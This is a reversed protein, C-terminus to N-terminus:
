QYTFLVKLQRKHNAVYASLSAKKPYRLLFNLQRSHNAEDVALSPKIETHLHFTLNAIIIQQTLLCPIAKQIWMYNLTRQRNHNAAHATQCALMFTNRSRFVSELRRNQSAEDASPTIHYKTAKSIIIAETLKLHQCRLSVSYSMYTCSSQSLFAAIQWKWM